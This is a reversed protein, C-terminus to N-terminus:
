MAHECSANPNWPAFMGSPNDRETWIHIAWVSLPENRLLPQGLLTPPQDSTWQDFPVVYDVGILRMSGDAQPEYMVLEPQMPDLVTDVLAPNMYHFGQVGDASQACGEPYQQTYGAARATDLSAFRATAQRVREVEATMEASLGNANSPQEMAASDGATDQEATEDSPACAVLAALSVMAMIRMAM